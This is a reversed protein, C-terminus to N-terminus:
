RKWRLIGAAALLFLFGAFFVILGSIEHLTGEAIGAGGAYAGIGTVVLRVTNAAVAAPIALTVLIVKRVPSIASFAALVIALTIMTMLSRLGSCAAVVELSYNPLHLINGRRIVDVHLLRLVVTSLRASMLQMPFTIKYYIIYPLPIMFFLLLLAPGAAGTFRRGGLYLSAGVLFVPLSLRATFLESAATGGILLISALAICALGPVSGGATGVGLRERNRYLIFASIFPILFGHHYNPDDLWQRVLPLVVPAYLVAFSAALFCPFIRKGWSTKMVTDQQEPLYEGKEAADRKPTYVTKGTFVLAILQLLFAM